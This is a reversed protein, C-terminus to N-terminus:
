WQNEMYKGLTVMSKGYTERIDNIKMYKGLTGMSKGYTERIDGNIKWINGWHGWQNEMHKGLTGM